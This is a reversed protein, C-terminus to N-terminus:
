EDGPIAFFLYIDRNRPDFQMGVIRARPSGTKMRVYELFEYKEYKLPSVRHLCKTQETVACVVLGLTEDPAIEVVTSRVGYDPNPQHVAANAKAASMVMLGLVVLLIIIVGIFPNSEDPKSM